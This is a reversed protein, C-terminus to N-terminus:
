GNSIYIAVYISILDIISQPFTMKLMLNVHDVSLHHLENSLVDQLYSTYFLIIM